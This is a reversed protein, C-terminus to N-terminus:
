AKPADLRLVRAIPAPLWWNWRGMLQMLAPVLLARIVTADFIIGAALLMLAMALAWSAGDGRLMLVVCLPVMVLLLAVRLTLPDNTEPPKTPCFLPVM